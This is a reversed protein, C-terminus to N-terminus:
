WGVATSIVLKLLRDEGVEFSPLLGSRPHQVCPRGTRNVSARGGLPACTGPIGAGPFALRAVYGPQRPVRSTGGLRPCRNRRDSPTQVGAPDTGTRLLEPPM